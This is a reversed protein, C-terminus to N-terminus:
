KKLKREARDQGIIKIKLIALLNKKQFLKKRERNIDELKLKSLKERLEKYTYIKNLLYARYFKEPLKICSLDELSLSNLDLSSGIEKPFTVRSLSTLKSLFISGGIKEPFIVDELSTLNGLELNGGIEKPFVIGKLKILGGLCLSDGIKKPLTVGELKTLKPLNLFGGIKEPLTVGALSSLERLELDGGIEKPFTVDKLSTVKFLRLYGKIKRPLIVGNLTTSDGLNLDGYHYLINGQLAEEKTLSIQTESCDFLKALDQKINRNDIIEKIRPDKENGFGLIVEDVEYLFKLEEKTLERTQYEKYIKTLKEMDRLKRLYKDSDPFETLKKRLIGEMNPELNQDKAIGRIEVISNGEKRISIRPIVYENKENKTYYVYFDGLKIQSKTTEKSTATCWGTNYGQLSEYLRIYNPKEGNAIKEEAEEESEQLYRQWIGIDGNLKIEKKNVLLYGYIQAFNKNKIHEEIEEELKEGNLYKKLYEVSKGILESDVIVFPNVATKSRRKYETRKENLNGIKLMGQFAWVKAWMPLNDSDPSFFYNLWADLSDMQESNIQKIHEERLSQDKETKPRDLDFKGYGQNLYKEELHHWYSSPINEEKILYRDHYLDKLREEFDASELTKKDIRELKQLYKNLRNVKEDLDKAKEKEIIIGKNIFDDYISGLFVKFNM